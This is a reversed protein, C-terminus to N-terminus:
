RSLLNYIRLYNSINKELTFRKLPVAKYKGKYVKEVAAAIQSSNKPEVLIHKGSVVEPLSTTNTAVVPVKMAAAEAATYGFGESL